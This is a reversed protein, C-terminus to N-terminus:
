ELWTPQLREPRFVQRPPEAALVVVHDLAAQVVARREDISMAAWRAALARGTGAMARLAAVRALHAVQAEVVGTRHGVNRKLSIWEDKSIQGSAWLDGLDALRQRHGVLETALERGDVPPRVFQLSDLRALVMSAVAEEAHDATVATGSCGGHPPGPCVYLDAGHARPMGRMTGGCRWCRLLGTLLYRRTARRPGKRRSAHLAVLRAHTEEDIIQPVLRTQLLLSSLSNVRWPGGNATTLGRRNWDQVVGSLTEGALVRRAAEDIAAAEDEIVNSRDASHGFARRLPSAPPPDPVATLVPRAQPRQRM